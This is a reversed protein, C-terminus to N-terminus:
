IVRDSFHLDEYPTAIYILNVEENLQTVAEIRDDVANFIKFLITKESIKFNM